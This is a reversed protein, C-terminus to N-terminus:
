SQVGHEAGDREGFKYGDRWTEVADDLLKFVISFCENACKDADHHIESGTFRVTPTRMLLLERDRARDYAAQQKTRDHFEHGDCEIGIWNGGYALVFDLRYTSISVNSGILWSSTWGKIADRHILGGRKGVGFLGDPTIKM